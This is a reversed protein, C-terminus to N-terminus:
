IALIFDMDTMYEFLQDYTNNKKGYISHFEYHCKSCLSIGNDIDYRCDENDKWNYIHHAVLDHSKNKCCQCTFRDREFVSRRWNIYENTAREKREYEVDDIWRPNNKGTMSKRFEDTKSYNDVGYKKLCTQRSREKSETTRQYSEQGYKRLCTEKKKKKFEETQFYNDVGYRKQMTNKYKELSEQSRRPNGTTNFTDEVKLQCCSACCDNKLITKKMKQCRNTWEIFYENQCYDCKVLVLASSGESLHEIKVEFEDKMKTYVYGLDVFRKKNRSNWKVKATKSLISM